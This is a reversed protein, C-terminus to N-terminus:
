TARPRPARALPSNWKTARCTSLDAPDHLDMAQRQKDCLLATEEVQEEEDGDEAEMPEPEMTTAYGLTAPRVTPRFAELELDMTDPM